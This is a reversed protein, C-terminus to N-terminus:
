KRANQTSALTVLTLLVAGGIACVGIWVLASGFEHVGSDLGCHVQVGSSFAQGIAGIPSNCVAYGSSTAAQMIIGIILFVVGTIGTGILRSQYQNGSRRVPAGHRAVAAATRAAAQQVTPAMQGARVAKAVDNAQARGYPGYWEAAQESSVASEETTTGNPTVYYKM